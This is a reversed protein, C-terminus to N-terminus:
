SKENVTTETKECLLDLFNMAATDSIKMLPIDVKIKNEKAWRQYQDYFAMAINAQWSHYYSGEKKDKSLEATIAAIGQAVTVKGIQKLAETKVSISVLEPEKPTCTACHWAIEFHKEGHCECPIDYHFYTRNVIGERGCVECKGFENSGSM